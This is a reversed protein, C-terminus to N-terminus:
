HPYNAERARSIRTLHKRMVADCAEHLYYIEDPADTLGFALLYSAGGVGQECWLCIRDPLPALEPAGNLSSEDRQAAERSDV